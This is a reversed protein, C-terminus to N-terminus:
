QVEFFAWPYEDEAILSEGDPCSPRGKLVKYASAKLATAGSESSLNFFATDQCEDYQCCFRVCVDENQCEEFSYQFNNGSDDATSETETTNANASLCLFACFVQFILVFIM